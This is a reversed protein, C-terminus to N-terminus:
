REWSPASESRFEGAETQILRALQDCYIREHTAVLQSAYRRGGISKTKHLEVIYDDAATLVVTAFMVRTAGGKTTHTLLFGLGNEHDDPGALVAYSRAGVRMLAGLGIQRRITNAVELAREDTITRPATTSTM